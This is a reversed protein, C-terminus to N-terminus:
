VGQILIQHNKKKQLELIIPPGTPNRSKNFVLVQLHLSEYAVNQFTSLSLHNKVYVHM